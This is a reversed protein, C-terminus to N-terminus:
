KTVPRVLCGMSCDFNSNCGRYPEDIGNNNFQLCFMFIDNDYTASLYLGSENLGAVPYAEQRFGAAPLFISNENTKSCVLYGKTGNQTSWTWTCNTLLEEIEARTPMRWNEGWNAAAADYSATLNNNTDVVGNLKLGEQIKELILMNSSSYNSKPATEGWAFYDGYEEPSNAGVNCNAWKVSLGLDVAQIPSEEEILNLNKWYDASSYVDISGAPIYIKANQDFTNSSYIIPPNISQIHVQSSFYSSINFAGNEIEVVSDPITVNTLSSCQSFAWEGIKTVTSPISISSLFRCNSFTSSEITTVGQPIIISEM